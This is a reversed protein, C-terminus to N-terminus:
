HRRRPGGKVSPRVLGMVVGLIRLQQADRIVIPRYSRNAPWLEVRDAYRRFTKVTAEDEILAVVIAGSDAHDAQRVVVLDDELIGAEIM